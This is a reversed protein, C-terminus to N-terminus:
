ARVFNGSSTFKARQDRKNERVRTVERSRNVLGMSGGIKLGVKKRKRKLQTWLRVKVLNM